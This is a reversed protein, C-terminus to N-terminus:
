RQWLGVQLDGLLCIAWTGTDGQQTPPYAVVAGKAEAQSIAAAIDDVALYPRIIPQEHDALPRAGRGDYRKREGRSSREGARASGGRPDITAYEIEGLQRSKM